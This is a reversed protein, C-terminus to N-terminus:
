DDQKIIQAYILAAEKVDTDPKICGETSTILNSHEHKEPAYSGKIKFAMDLAKQQVGLDDFEREDLVVGHHAFFKKSKAELMGLLKIKLAAESLGVEDLWEEIKVKYYLYNTNGASSPSKYGAARAAGTRNLFTDTNGQDLFYYLWADKKSLAM